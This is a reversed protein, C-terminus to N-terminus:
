RSIEAEDSLFSAFKRRAAQSLALADGDILVGM